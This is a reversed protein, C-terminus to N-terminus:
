QREGVAAPEVLEDTPGTFEQQAPGHEVGLSGERIDLGERLIYHDRLNHEDAELHGEGANGGGQNEAAHGLPHLETGNHEERDKPWQKGVIGHCVHHPPPGARGRAETLRRVGECATCALDPGESREVEGTARHHVDIRAYGGQNTGQDQSRALAVPGLGHWGM